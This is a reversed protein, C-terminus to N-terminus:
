ATLHQVSSRLKENVEELREKEDACRELNDGDRVIIEKQYRWMNATDELRESLRRNEARLRENEHILSQTQAEASARLERQREFAQTMNSLQDELKYMNAKAEQLEDRARKLEAMLEDMVSMEKELDEFSM